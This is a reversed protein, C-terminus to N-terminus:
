MYTVLHHESAATAAGRVPLIM